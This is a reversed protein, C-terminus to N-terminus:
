AGDAGTVRFPQSWVSYRDRSAEVRVYREDGGAAYSLTTGEGEARIRGTGDVFRVAMREELRATIVAGAAGFEAAPGTSGYFAGTVLAQRLDGATVRAARAMIWARNFQARTHCDDVAIGWVSRSGDRLAAEWRPVDGEPRSHPNRIEVFHFGRLSRIAEASWSGTWLNGTWSPHCLGCLGGAAVTQDICAQAEGGRLSGAVFLRLMHPGLPRLRSVTDETGALALFADDDHVDCRTVGNHDTLFVFAYGAHKYMRLLEAPPFTGDSATTHCHLQVKRYPGPVAYPDEIRVAV